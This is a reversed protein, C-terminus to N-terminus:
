HPSCNCNKNPCDRVRECIEKMPIVWGQKNAIDAKRIGSEKLFETTYRSKWKNDLRLYLCSFHPVSNM